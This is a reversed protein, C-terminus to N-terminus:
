FRYSVMFHLTDQSHSVTTGAFPNLQSPAGDNTQTNKFGHEYAFDFDWEKWTYTFGATAHHEVIAPFLPSLNESPVPNKGYNYGVRVTVSDTLEYAAGIAFVYQDDWGLAFPVELTEYGAPVQGDPNSAKVTVSKIASKWNIWTVDFALMLKDIPRFSFGAEVQQPWTFDEMKVDRYKVKGLGPGFNQTLTGGDFNMSSQSTYTAGFAWKDTIRYNLGFRGSFTFSDLGEVSQGQPLNPFFDYKMTAYGVYLSAGLTLKDTLNYAVTPSLKLYAVESFLKDKVGPAVQVDQFDVGMGGQAFVGIGVSWRSTGLRQAYGVFPLPFLQFENDKRKQGSLQVDMDPMLLGAGGSIVRNCTTALQAPNGAIATCGAPVAVDAGGMGSSVAGTGIMNMGNTAWASTSALFMVAAAAWFAVRRM